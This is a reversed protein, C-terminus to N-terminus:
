YVIKSLHRKGYIIDSFKELLNVDSAVLSIASLYSISKPRNERIVVYGDAYMLGLFYANEECDIKEFFDPRIIEHRLNNTNGTLNDQKEINFLNLAETLTEVGISMEDMAYKAIKNNKLFESAELANNCRAVLEIEPNKKIYSELVDLALPEDDVIICKM